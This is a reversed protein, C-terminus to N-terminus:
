SAMPREAGILAGVDVDDLQQPQLFQEAYRRYVGSRLFLAFLDPCLGCFLFGRM